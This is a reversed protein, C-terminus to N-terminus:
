NTNMEYAKILNRRFTKDKKLGAERSMAEGRTKFSEIYLLVWHRGRTSKAGKGCNHKKLRAEVDITWGTYSRPSQNKICDSWSGLVYVYCPYRKASM